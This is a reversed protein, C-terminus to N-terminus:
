SNVNTSRKKRTERAKKKTETKVFTRNAIDLIQAFFMYIVIDLKTSFLKM